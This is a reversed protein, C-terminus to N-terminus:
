LYCISPDHKTEKKTQKKLYIRRIEAMQKSYKSHKCKIYNGIPYSKHRDHNQERCTNNKNQIKNKM